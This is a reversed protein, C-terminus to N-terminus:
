MGSIWWHLPYGLHRRLAQLFVPHTGTFCISADSLGAQSVEQSVRWYDHVATKFPKLAKLRILDPNQALTLLTETTTELEEEYILNGLTPLAVDNECNM